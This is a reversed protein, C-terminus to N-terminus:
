TGDKGNIVRRTIIIEGEHKNDVEFKDGYKKPALKSAIWKRADVRLRSRNIWESNATERGDDHVITDRESEDAIEIIEDFIADARYECARAYHKAKKDDDNLWRYFTEPSPMGHDKLITRLSRGNIIHSMIQSFIENIKEESYAM